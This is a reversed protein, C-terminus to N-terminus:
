LRVNRVCSSLLIRDLLGGIRELIKDRMPIGTVRLQPLRAAPHDRMPVGLCLFLCYADHVALWATQKEM